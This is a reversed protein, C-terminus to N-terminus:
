AGTRIVLREPGHFVLDDAYCVTEDPDLRLGPLGRLLETLGLEAEARALPAGLCYHPGLGFGTHRAADRRLDLRDPDTFRRPDRNASGLVLVIRAGRRVRRGGLETDAGALRSIMQVPSDYRVLEDVTGQPLAPGARLLALEGPHGLLALLGKALLNTTTEHGATLLHVCSGVLVDDNLDEERACRLLRGILDTGPGRGPARRRHLEARFYADLDRAAADALAYAEPRRATRSGTALQLDLARSRFWGRDEAPVGLLEGIVLLPLPAAFHTVLDVREKEGMAAVLGAALRRIRPRLTDVVPPTFSGALLARVRTHEPPDLFVLWHATTRRLHACSEPIRAPPGGRVYRRDTLVRVVDEHRFVYWAGDAGRHVPDAERYRRYCPYPDAPPVDATRFPGPPRTSM